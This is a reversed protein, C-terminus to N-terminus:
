DIKCGFNQYQNRFSAVWQLWDKPLIKPNNEKQLIVEITAVEIENPYNQMVDLQNSFWAENIIKNFLFMDVAVGFDKFQNTASSLFGTKVVENNTHAFTTKNKSLFRVANNLQLGEDIRNKHNSWLALFYEKKFVVGAVGYIAYYGLFKEYSYVNLFEFIERFKLRNFRFFAITYLLPSKTYLKPDYVTYNEKELVSKSQILKPNGLWFLKLLTISDSKANEYIAKLNVKQTFWIDDELLIFYDSAKEASSIWFDIPIKMTEPKLGLICSKSKETYYNSKLIEIEPFKNQLKDLYKQPTGDDLIKIKFDSESCNLYISQLCRDLYYPRNFSKILIDM